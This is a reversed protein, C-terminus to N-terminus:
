DDTLKAMARLADSLAKEGDLKKGKPSIVIMTHEVGPGEVMDDDDAGRLQSMLDDLVNGSVDSGKDTDNNIAELLPKHKAASKANVVFEGNSLRVPIDDSKGTGPGIVKGGNSYMKQVPQRIGSIQALAARMAANKDTVQGGKAFFSSSNSFENDLENGLNADTNSFDNALSSDLSSSLDSSSNGFESELSSLDSAGQSSLSTDSLGSSGGFLNSLASAGSGLLGALGSSVSSGTGSSPNAIGNGLSNVSNEASTYATTLPSTADSASQKELGSALSQEQQQNQINQNQAGTLQTNLNLNATQNALNAQLGQSSAQLTAAQQNSTNAANAQQQNEVNTTNAQQQNQVNQTNAAQENQANQENAQQELQTNLANIADQASAVQAQQNFSQQGASLGLNGEASLANLAQGFSNAEAQNVQTAANNVEGQVAQQQQDLQQGGGYQGRAQQAAQIAGNEGTEEATVSALAQQLAARQQPTYGNQAVAQLGGLTNSVAGTDESPVQVNKLNTAAQAAAAMQAPTMTAANMSAAAMTAPTITQNPNIGVNKNILDVLNPYSNAETNYTNAWESPDNIAATTLDNLENQNYATDAIGPISNAVGGALGNLISQLDDSVGSTDAM